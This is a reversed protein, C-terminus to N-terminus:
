GYVRKIPDMGFCSQGTSRDVMHIRYVRSMGTASSVNIELPLGCGSAPFTVDVVVSWERTGAIWSFGPTIPMKSSLSVEVVKPPDTVTAAPITIKIGVGTVLTTSLRGTIKISASTPFTTWYPFATARLPWSSAAWEYDMTTRGTQLSFELGRPNGATVIHFHNWWWGNHGNHESITLVKNDVCPDLSPELEGVSTGKCSGCGLSNPMTIGNLLFANRNLKACYTAASTDSATTPFCPTDGPFTSMETIVTQFTALCPGCVGEAVGADRNLVACATGMSAGITAAVCPELSPYNEGIFGSKCPGCSNSKWFILPLRHLSGCATNSTIATCAEMSPGPKTSGFNPKCWGCRSPDNSGFRIDTSDYRNLGACGAATTTITRFVETVELFALHADTVGTQADVEVAEPPELMSAHEKASGQMVLLFSVLAAGVIVTKPVDFIITPFWSDFKIRDWRMSFFFGSAYALAIAWIIGNNKHERYIDSTELLAVASEM